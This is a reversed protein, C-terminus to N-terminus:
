QEDDGNNDTENRYKEDIMMRKLDRRMRIAEANFYSSVGFVAAAYTMGQALVILVSHETLFLAMFSACLTIGWGLCFAVLATGIAFKEKITLSNWGSDVKEKKEM